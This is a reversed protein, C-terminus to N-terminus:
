GAKLKKFSDKWEILDAKDIKRSGGITYSNLGGAEKPIQCYEYVRRRSIGMYDAVHQPTLVDPLDELKRIKEMKASM